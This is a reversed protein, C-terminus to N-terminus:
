HMDEATTKYHRICIDPVVIKKCCFGKKWESICKSISFANLKRLRKVTKSQCNTKFERIIYELIKYAEDKQSYWNQKLKRITQSNPDVRLNPRVIHVVNTQFYEIAAITKEGCKGDIKLPMDRRLRGNNYYQRNLLVQIKKVDHLYNKGDQGVSGGISMNM